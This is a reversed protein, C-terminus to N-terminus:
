HVTESRLLRVNQGRISQDIEGSYAILTHLSEAQMIEPQKVQGYDLITAAIDMVEVLGNVEPASPKTIFSQPPKVILPVRIVSEFFMAKGMMRFDGMMEGHDSTYIILTDNWLGTERLAAFIRGCLSDLMTCLGYYYAKLRRIGTREPDYDLDLQRKSYLAPRDSVDAEYTSPTPIADPSYMRDYPEPADFPGHPNSFGCWVFFPDSSQQQNRIFDCTSEAVWTDVWIECPAFILDTSIFPFPVELLSSTLQSFM